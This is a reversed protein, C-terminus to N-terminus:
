GEPPYTGCQFCVLNAKHFNFCYPCKKIKTPPAAKFEQAPQNEWFKRRKMANEPTESFVEKMKKEDIDSLQKTM